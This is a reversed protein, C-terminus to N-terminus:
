SESMPFSILSDWLIGTYGFRNMVSIRKQGEEPPFIRDRRNAFSTMLMTNLVEQSISPPYYYVPRLLSLDVGVVGETVARGLLATGPLIRIGSFPFVVCTKLRELNAIGERVTTETEGPGGFIVFHAMPIQEAAGAENFAVVEDFTFGKNLGALTTDSAADTGVEMAYLGSRKMDSLVARSIREPRFFASWKIPLGRRLLAEVLELYHGNRDNFVSDTFFVHRVDFEKVMREMDGVVTETDRCRYQTGELSPYTCYVCRYPCGRKTQLNIMGGTMLYYDVLDKKLLPTHMADKALGAGNSRLIRPMPRNEQLAMVLECILREGEGVIGYDAELFELIEEPLISFAPGGLIIPAIVSKKVLTILQKSTALYWARDASFSDVNDINRLSVGVVDPAFATISASLAAESRGGALFDFQLVVHGAAELASAVVAMGLPYVPYPESAINTSLLFVRSVPDPGKQKCVKERL